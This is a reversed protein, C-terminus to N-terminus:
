ASDIDFQLFAIRASDPSWWHATGLGLEEPYVWDLRANWIASTSDSTLRREKKSAIELVHLEKDRQFSIM